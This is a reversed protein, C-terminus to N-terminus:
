QGPQWISKREREKEGRETQIGQRGDLLFGFCRVWGRIFCQSVPWVIWGPGERSWGPCVTCVLFIVFVSWMRIYFCPKEGKLDNVHPQHVLCMGIQFQTFHISNQPPRAEWRCRTLISVEFPLGCAMTIWPSGESLRLGWSCVTDTEVERAVFWSLHQVCQRCLCITIQSERNCWYFRSSLLLTCYLINFLMRESSCATNGQKKQWELLM